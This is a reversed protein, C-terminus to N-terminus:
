LYYCYGQYIDDCNDVGNDNYWNDGYLNNYNIDNFDYNYFILIYLILTFLHIFAYPYLSSHMSLFVAPYIGVSVSITLM